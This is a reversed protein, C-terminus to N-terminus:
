NHGMNDKILAEYQANALAKIEESAYNSIIIRETLKNMLEVTSKEVPVSVLTCPVDMGFNIKMVRDIVQEQIIGDVWDAINQLMVAMLEIAESREAYSGTSAGGRTLSGDPIILGRLMFTQLADIYSLFNDGETDGTLYEVSWLKTVNGEDDVSQPLVAYGSSNVNRAISLAEEKNEFNGDTDKNDPYYVLLMPSGQQEFHRDAQLTIFQLTRWSQYSSKLISQGYLNNYLMNWSALVSASAPVEVVSQFTFGAYEGDEMYLQVYEPDAHVFTRPIFYAKNNFECDDWVMECVSFGYDLAGLLNKVLDSIQPLIFTNMFELIDDDECVFSRATSIVPSKISSLGLKITPDTIMQTYTTTTITDPNYSGWKSAIINENTIRRQRLVDPSTGPKDFIKDNNEM